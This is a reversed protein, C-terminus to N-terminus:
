KRIGLRKMRSDFTSRNLGAEKAARTIHWKNKQLLYLVYTKEVEDWTLGEFPSGSTTFQTSETPEGSHTEPMGAGASHDPKLLPFHAQLDESTIWEGQAVVIIHKVFNELERV